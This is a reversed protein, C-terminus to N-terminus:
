LGGDHLEPTNMRAFRWALKWADKQECQISYTDYQRQALALMQKDRAKERQAMVIEDAQEATMRTM